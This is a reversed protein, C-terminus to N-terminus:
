VTVLDRLSELMKPGIGSVSLLDDVSAFRGNAERWEIIRGAIAPGVGPLTDLAGEDASNLNVRGDATVGAPGAAPAEGVRPVIVQEGDSVPRALNVGTAEADEALGGAAAVADVVRADAHLVYLGPANVAGSVHVYLSTSATAVTVPAPALSQASGAGRVIGVIVAIALGGLALIVVAGVGWRRREERALGGM